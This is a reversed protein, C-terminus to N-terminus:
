ENSQNFIEEIVELREVLSHIDTVADSYQDRLTKIQERLEDVALTCEKVREKLSCEFKHVEDRVRRDITKM